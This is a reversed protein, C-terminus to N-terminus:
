LLELVRDSNMRAIFQLGKDTWIAGYLEYEKCMNAYNGLVFYRNNKKDYVVFEDCLEEITDVVKVIENDEYDLTFYDNCGKPIAEWHLNDNALKVDKTKKKRAYFVRGDKTRIYKEELKTM